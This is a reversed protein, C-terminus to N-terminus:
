VFLCILDDVITCYLGTSCCHIQEKSLYVHFLNQLILCYDLIYFSYVIVLGLVLVANDQNSPLKEWTSTELINTM